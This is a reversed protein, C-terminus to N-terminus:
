GKCKEVVDSKIKKLTQVLRPEPELARNLNYAPQLGTAQPKTLGIAIFTSAPELRNISAVYLEHSSSLKQFAWAQRPVPKDPGFVWVLFVPTM